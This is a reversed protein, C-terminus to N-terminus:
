LIYKIIRNSNNYVMELKWFYTIHLYLVVLWESWLPHQFSFAFGVKKQSFWFLWPLAKAIHDFAWRNTGIISHACINLLSPLQTTNSCNSTIKKQVGEMFTVVHPHAWLQSIVWQKVEVWNESHPYCYTCFDCNIWSYSETFLFKTFPAASGQIASLLKQTRLALFLIKRNGGSVTYHQFGPKEKRKKWM